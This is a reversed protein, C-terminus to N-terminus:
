ARRSSRRPPAPRAPSKATAAQAASIASPPIDKMAPECHVGSDRFLEMVPINEYDMIYRTKDVPTNEKIWKLAVLPNLRSRVYIEDACSTIIKNGVEDTRVILIGWPASGGPDIACYWPWHHPIKFPEINHVSVLNYDAYIKGSFDDFSGDLYRAVWEAPMSAREANFYDDPVFGGNSVKNEEARTIVGLRSFQKGDVKPLDRHVTKFFVKPEKAIDFVYDGPKSVGNQVEESFFDEWIWDHGIQNGAGLAHPKIPVRKKLVTDYRTRSLRSTLKGWDARGIEEVQDAFFWGWDGGALHMKGSQKDIIYDFYIESTRGVERTRLKYILGTQGVRKPKGVIMDEPCVEHFTKLTTTQLDKASARGIFGFNDPVLYSLLVGAFCGIRTEGARFGAM